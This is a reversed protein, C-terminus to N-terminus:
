RIAKRIMSALRPGQVQLSYQTEVRKRGEAGMSRRLEKDSILRRLAHKWEQAGRALFGNVGHEVIQNNVGVPSAVVPLGCAMYQILKYGCKGREWPSDELPMIGIDFAQIAQVETDDSWRQVEIPLGTLQEESAGVAVFRVDAEGILTEFASGIVWLYSTTSPSGIWGVTLPYEVATDVVEYRALDVVTPVVEVQRAGAVRAREALYENGAVVLTAHRMVADIKHGLLSRILWYRNLDFRHFLADDYDAVYPVSFIVLLREAFAPLFPFIEKEIWILDYKGVGLLSKIRRWYGAIVHLGKFRRSYLAKLYGDSFLPSVDIKWGKSEFFPLYQLSRVRSSAGLRGYRTLLLIRM